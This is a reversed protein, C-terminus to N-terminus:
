RLQNSGKSIGLAALIAWQKKSFSAPNLGFGYPTARIRRKSVTTYRQVITPYPASSTNSVLGSLTDTEVRVIKEMIYGYRMVLGDKGLYTINKLVDGVNLKWDVLWSWPTLNYFTEPNPLVGLV